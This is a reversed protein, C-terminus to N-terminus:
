NFGKEEISARKRRRQRWGIAIGAIALVWAPIRLFWSAKIGLIESEPLWLRVSIALFLLLFAGAALASALRRRKLALITFVLCHLAFVVLMVKWFWDPM